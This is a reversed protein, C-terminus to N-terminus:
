KSATVDEAVGNRKKILLSAKAWNIQDSLKYSEALKRANKELNGTRYYIDPHVEMFIRGDVSRAIKVPMYIIRGKTNLNVVNFLKEMNDPYVRICGHSTFGFISTPINTGHILIGPISTRLAYGGLPNKKGPPVRTLVEHGKEQMEEQISPPVNWTPNKIKQIITFSGTVTRWKPDSKGVTVASIATLVGDKFFYLTKEPINIILGEAPYVPIIRRNNYYLRLNNQTIPERANIKNYEALKQWNIGLKAGLLQATEGKKANCTLEGGIIADPGPIVTPISPTLDSDLNCVKPIEDSENQKSMSQLTQESVADDPAMGDPQAPSENICWANQAPYLTCAFVFALIVSKIFIKV